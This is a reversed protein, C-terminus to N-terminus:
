HNLHHGIVLYGPNLKMKFRYLNNKTPPITNPWLQKSERVFDREVLPCIQAPHIRPM